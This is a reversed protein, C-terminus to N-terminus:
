EGWQVGVSAFEDVADLGPILGAFLAVLLVGAIFDLSLLCVALVYYELHHTLQLDNLVQGVLLLTLLLYLLTELTQAVVLGLLSILGVQLQM